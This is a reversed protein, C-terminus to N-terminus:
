KLHEYETKHVVEQLVAEFCYSEICVNEGMYSKIKDILDKHLTIEITEFENEMEKEKTFIKFVGTM